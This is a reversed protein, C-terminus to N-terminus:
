RAGPDSRRDVTITILLYLKTPSRSFAATVSRVAFGVILEDIWQTPASSGSSNGKEFTHIKWTHPHSLENARLLQTHGQQQLPVNLQMAGKAYWGAAVETFARM